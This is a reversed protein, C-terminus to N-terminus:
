SHSARNSLLALRVDRETASEAASLLWNIAPQNDYKIVLRAFNISPFEESSYILKFMKLRHESKKESRWSYKTLIRNMVVKSENRIMTRFMARYELLWEFVDLRCESVILEERFYDSPWMAGHETAFVIAELTAYEIMFSNIPPLPTKEGNEIWWRTIGIYACQYKTLVYPGQFDEHIFKFLEHNGGCVCHLLQNANWDVCFQKLWIVIHTKNRRIATEIRNNNVPCGMAVLMRIMEFTGWLVAHKILHKKYRGSMPETEMAARMEAVKGNNIFLLHKRSVEITGRRMM